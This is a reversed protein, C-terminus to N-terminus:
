QGILTFEGLYMVSQTTERRQSIVIDYYSGNTLGTIDLSITVETPTQTNALSVTGTTAGLALQLYQAQGDATLQWINGKFILTSVGSIKPWKVIPHSTSFTSGNNLAWYSYQTGTLAAGLLSTSEIAAYTNTMVKSQSRNSSYIVNSLSGGIAQEATNDARRIYLTEQDTRYFLRLPTTNAPFGSSGNIAGNTSLCIALRDVLNNKSGHPNTGIYTQLAIIEGKLINHDNQDVDDVENVVDAKVLIGSPYTSM